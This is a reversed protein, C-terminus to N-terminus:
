RASGKSMTAQLDRYRAFPEGYARHRAKDPRFIKEAKYLRASTEALSTFERCGYAALMAAGLVAAETVRPREVPRGLVDAKMQLWLDDKAGGGISRVTKIKLGQSELFEVNERLAFVLAELTARLLDGRTHHLGLGTFVGRLLSDPEPSVMGEFHPLMTVGRSGIPTGAVWGRMIDWSAGDCFERQFWDLVVGATKSYAMAFDFPRIPFRGGFLGAPMTKPLHRTLTVLAMCTGSTESIIGPRCNGAGLAGAYQDNTGAVLMTEPSLGWKSAVKADVKGIPTGPPVIRAMQDRRIGAADLAEQCYDAAGEAYLGSSSATNADTVALGTLRFALYDPLLLYKCATKLRDARHQRLWLIKSVTAITEIFPRGVANKPVMKDLWRAQEAARSDYWLIAPHLARGREDLTVFMQGQSSVSLGAVKVRGGQTVERICERAARDVAEIDIEAQGLAPRDPTLPRRALAVLRGDATFCGAKVSTGGLDV